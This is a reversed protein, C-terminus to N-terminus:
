QALRSEYRERTTVAIDRLEEPSYSPGANIVHGAYNVIRGDDRAGCGHLCWGSLHDYHHVKNPKCFTM